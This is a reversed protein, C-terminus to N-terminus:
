LDQAPSMLGALQAAANADREGAQKRAQLAAIEQVTPIPHAPAEAAARRRVEKMALGPPVDRFHSFSIRLEPFHGELYDHLRGIDRAWTEGETSVSKLHYTKDARILAADGLSLVLVQLLRAPSPAWWVSLRLRYDLSGILEFGDQRLAFHIPEGPMGSW